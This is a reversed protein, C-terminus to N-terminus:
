YEKKHKQEDEVAHLANTTVHHLESPTQMYRGLTVSVDLTETFTVALCLFPFNFAFKTFYIYSFTLETNYVYRSNISHGNASFFRYQFPECQSLALM